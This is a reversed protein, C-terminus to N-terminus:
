TGGELTQWGGRAEFLWRPLKQCNVQAAGDELCEEVAVGECGRRVFENFDQQSFVYRPCCSARGRAARKPDQGERARSAVRSYCREDLDGAQSARRARRLFAVQSWGLPPLVQTSRLAAMMARACQRWANSEARLTGLREEFLKQPALPRFPERYTNSPAM